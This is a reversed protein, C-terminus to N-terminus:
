YEGRKKVKNIKLMWEDYNQPLENVRKQDKIIQQNYIDDISTFEDIKYANEWIFYFHESYLRYLCDSTEANNVIFYPSSGGQEVVVFPTVIAVREDIIMSLSPIDDFVRLEFRKLDVGDEKLIEFFNQIDMIVSNIKVIAEYKTKYIKAAARIEATISWPCLLLIQISFNKDEELKKRILPFNASALIDNSSVGIIKLFGKSNDWVSKFNIRKRDLYFESVGANGIIEEPVISLLKESMFDVIDFKLFVEMVISVTSSTIFTIGLASLVGQFMIKEDILLYDVFLLIVGVLILLIVIYFTKFEIIQKVEKWGLNGKKQM